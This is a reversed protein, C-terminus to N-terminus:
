FVNDETPYLILEPMKPHVCNSCLFETAMAVGSFCGDGCLSILSCARVCAKYLKICQSVMYSIAVISNLEFEVM